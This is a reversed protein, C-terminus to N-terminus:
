GGVTGSQATLVGAATVRFPASSQATAGAWFGAGTKMQVRTAGTGAYLGETGDITFGAITGASAIVGSATLSYGTGSLGSLNLTVDGAILSGGNLTISSGAVTIAGNFTSVDDVNLSGTLIASTATLEGDTNLETSQAKWSLNTGDFNFYKNAGDGAYFRPNGANYDLQIGDSGFTSSKVSILKNASDLVINTGSSLSTADIDWGGIAGTTATIDGTIDADTATLAGANTVRFPASGKTTGGINLAGDSADNLWLKNTSGIVISGATVTGLDATISALDTVSLKSVDISGAEIRGANLFGADIRDASILGTSIYGGTILTVGGLAETYADIFAANGLTNSFSTISADVQTGTRYNTDNTLDSVNDGSVIISGSAIIDNVDLLSTKIYGGTIITTGLKALEIASDDIQSTGVTDLTALNGADTFNGIGSSGVSVTGKFFASGGIISFEESYINGTDLNIQTGVDSYNGSTYGYGTSEIVGTRVREASITGSKTPPNLYLSKAQSDTLPVDYIRFEDIKGILSDGYISAGDNGRGIFPITISENAGGVTTGSTESIKVGDLFLTTEGSVIRFTAHHWETDAAVGTDFRGWYTSNSTQEGHFVFDGSGVILDLFNLSGSEGFLRFRDGSIGGSTLSDLKFYFSITKGTVSWDLVPATDLTIYSSGDFVVCDNSVGQQYDSTGSWTYSNDGVEASKSGSDFSFYTTLNLDFSPAPLSSVSLNGFIDVDTGIQINNSGDYNIGNLGGFRFAKSQYWYNDSDIWIGDDTGSVNAGFRMGNASVYGSFIGSNGAITPSQITTATIETSTIYSATASDPINSLNTDWDAGVTAGSAIGTLKTGETGNIDSLSSPTGTVSSYSITVSSDLVVNSGITISGSAAKTIGSSGGFQFSTDGDWFDTGVNIRGDGTSILEISNNTSSLKTEIFKWGAIRNALTRTTGTTLAGLAFFEKGSEDMMQVGYFNNFQTRDPNGSIDTFMEGLLVQGANGTNRWKVSLGKPTAGGDYFDIATGGHVSDSSRLKVIEGSGESGKSLQDVTFDWGAVEATSNSVRFLIDSDQKIYIGKGSVGAFSSLDGMAIENNSDGHRSLFYQSSTSKRVTIGLIDNTTAGYVRMGIYDSGSGVPLTGLYTTNIASTETVTSLVISGDSSNLKTAVAEFGALNLSSTNGNLIGGAFSFSTETINTAVSSLNFTEALITVGAGNALIRNNADLNIDLEDPTAILTTGDYTLKGSGLSFIGTGYWYDNADIYVGHNGVGGVDYGVLFQDNAISLRKNTADLVIDNDRRFSTANATWGAVLLTSTTDNYQFGSGVTLLNASAEMMISSGNRIRLGNTPDVTINNGSYDGFAAGYIDTSYGYWGKLNGAIARESIANYGTGTRQMFAITSGATSVGTKLSNTSYIDIFGTGVTGTNIVGDGEDWSNAGTGDLDRVSATYAYDGEAQLVGTSNIEIFEVSGDKEFHIIDDTTLNNHKFYLTTNSTGINRTLINGLGVNLRGGITSRREDAVITEVRLEAIHATLFKKTPSGINSTYSLEPYIDDAFTALANTYIGGDTDVTFDGNVRIGGSLNTLGEVSLTSYFNIIHGLSSARFRALVDADSVSGVIEFNKNDNTSKLALNSTSGTSTQKFLWARETNFRLLEAGDGGSSIKIRDSTDVTTGYLGGTLTVDGSIRSINMVNNVGGANDDVLFNIGNSYDLQIEHNRRPSGVGNLRWSAINTLSTYEFMAEESGDYDSVRIGNLAEVLGTFTGGGSSQIDGHVSLVASGLQSTGGVALEGSTGAIYSTGGDSRLLTDIAGTQYLSLSATASDNADRITITRDVTLNNSFNAEVGVSFINDDQDHEWVLTANAYDYLRFSNESTLYDLAYENVSDEQFVVRANEALRSNITLISANASDNSIEVGRSFFANQEDDLRLAETLVGGYDRTMLSITGSPAVNNHTNLIRIEANVRDGEGSGDDSYFEIAHTREEGGDGWTSVSDTDNLRIVSGRTMSGTGVDGTAYAINLQKTFAFSSRVPSQFVIGSGNDILSFVETGSTTASLFKDNISTRSLTLQNSITTLASITTPRGIRVASDSAYLVETSAGRSDFRIALNESADGRLSFDAGTSTPNLAGAEYSDSFWGQVGNLMLKRTTGTAGGINVNVSSEISSSTILLKSSGLTRFDAIARTSLASNASTRADLIYAPNSGTDDTVYTVDLRSVIEGKSLSHLSPQFSSTSNTSNAIKLYGLSDDSVKFTAIDESGSIADATFTSHGGVALPEDILFSTASSTGYMRFVGDAQHDFRVDSVGSQFFSAVVGSGNVTVTGSFNGDVSYVNGWRNGTGGLDASEVFGAVPLINGNDSIQIWNTGQTNPYFRFDDTAYLIMDGGSATIRDVAGDSGFRVSALANFDGSSTVDGSFTAGGSVELKVSPTTTGIGVNGNELLTFDNSKLSGDDNRSSIYINQNPTYIRRRKNDTM